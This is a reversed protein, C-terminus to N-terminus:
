CLIVYILPFVCLCVPVTKVNFVSTLTCKLNKVSGDKTSAPFPPLPDRAFVDQALVRGLAKTFPVKESGLVDCFELVKKQAEFVSIM